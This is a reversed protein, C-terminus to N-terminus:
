LRLEVLANETYHQQWQNTGIQLLVHSPIQKTFLSNTTEVSNITGFCTKKFFIKPANRLTRPQM